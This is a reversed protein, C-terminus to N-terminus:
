VGILRKKEPVGFSPASLMFLVKKFTYCKSCKRYAHAHVSSTVSAYRANETKKKKTKKVERSVIEAQKSGM